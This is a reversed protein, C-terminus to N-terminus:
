CGALAMWWWLYWKCVKNVRAAIELVLKRSRFTFSPWVRHNNEIIKSITKNEIWNVFGGFEVPYVCVLFFLQISEFRYILINWVKAKAWYGCRNSKIHNLHAKPPMWEFPQVPPACVSSIHIYSAYRQRTYIFLFTKRFAKNREGGAGGGFSTIHLNIYLYIAHECM